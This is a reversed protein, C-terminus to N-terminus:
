KTVPQLYETRSGNRRVSTRETSPAAIAEGLILLKDSIIVM